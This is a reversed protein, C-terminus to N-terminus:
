KKAEVLIRGCGDYAMYGFANSRTFGSCFLLTTIRNYTFASKHFQGETTQLGYLHSSYIDSDPNEIIKQCISVIDPVIIYLFGDVDLVRCWEKLLRPVEFKGFHELVDGCVIKSVSGDKLPLNFVDWDVDSSDNFKDINIYGKRIDNGCGINLCIGEPEGAVDWIDVAEGEKFSKM